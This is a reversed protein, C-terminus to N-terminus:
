GTLRPDTRDNEEADPVGENADHERCRGSVHLRPAQPRPDHAEDSERSVDPVLAKPQLVWSTRGGQMDGEGHRKSREAKSNARVDM